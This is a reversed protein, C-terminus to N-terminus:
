RSAKKQLAGAQALDADAEAGRNLRQLVAARQKYYQPKPQAKIARNIYDLAIEFRAEAFAADTLYSAASALKAAPPKGSELKRFESAAPEYEKRKVLAYIKEVRATADTPALAIAADADGEALFYQQIDNLQFARAALTKADRPQKKLVGDDRFILDLNKWAPMPKSVDVLLDKRANEASLAGSSHAALAYLLRASIFAPEAQRAAEADAKALTAGFGSYLYWYARSLLAAADTPNKELVASAATIHNQAEALREFAPRRSVVASDESGIKGAAAFDDLAGKFDLLSRRAEARTILLPADSNVGPAQDLLTVLPQFQGTAAMSEALQRTVALDDPTKNHFDALLAIAEDKKGDRSYLVRALVRTRLSPSVLAEDQVTKEARDYDEIELWLNALDERLERNAPEVHLIRQIIETQALRDGDQRALDLQEPLSAAGAPGVVSLALGISLLTRRLKM